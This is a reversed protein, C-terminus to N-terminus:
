RTRDGLFIAKDGSRAPNYYFSGKLDSPVKYVLKTTISMLPNIQKFSLGWGEALVQESKDFKFSKGDIGVIIQGDMLVRSENSTNKFNVYIVLYQTGREEPLTTFDNGTNIKSYFEAKSVVVDFYETHLVDGVNIQPARKTETTTQSTKSEAQTKKKNNGVAALVIISIVITLSIKVGNSMKGKWLGYLGVPFFLFCLLIVVANNNYWKGKTPQESQIEM